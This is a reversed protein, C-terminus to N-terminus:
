DELFIRTTAERRSGTSYEHNGRFMVPACCTCRSFLILAYRACLSYRLVADSTCMAHMCLSKVSCVSDTVIACRSSLSHTRVGYSSCLRFMTLSHLDFLVHADTRGHLRTAAVSLVAYATCMRQPALSNYQPALPRSRNREPIPRLM